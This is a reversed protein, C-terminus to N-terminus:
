PAEYKAVIARLGWLDADNADCYAEICTRLERLLEALKAEAICARDRFHETSENAQLVLDHMSRVDHQMGEAFVADLEERHKEATVQETVQHQRLLEQLEVFKAEAAEAREVEAKYGREAVDRSSRFQDREDMLQQLARATDLWRPPVSSFPPVPPFASRLLMEALEIAGQSPESPRAAVFQQGFRLDEIINTPAASWSPETRTPEPSIEHWPGYPCRCDVHRGHCLSCKLEGM